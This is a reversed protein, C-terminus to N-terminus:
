KTAAQYLKEPAVAGAFVRGDDTVLVSFLTGSFLRGSGWTGSVKPLGEIVGTLATAEPGKAQKLDPLKSTVITTWGKGITTPEADKADKGAKAAPAPTVPKKRGEAEAKEQLEQPTENEVKTGPPPNFTFQEADPVTFSIQQFAVRVAPDNAAKAYV